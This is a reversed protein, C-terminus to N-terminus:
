FNIIKDAWITWDTLEEMTSRKAGAIIEDDTIGRADMCTSCIGIEAHHHVVNGFMFEINYYGQPVKQEKKIGSVADGILFIKVKQNERKALSVALRLGNYNLENGYPASSLIFLTKM